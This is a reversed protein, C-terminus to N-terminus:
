TGVSAYLMDLKAVSVRLPAIYSWPGPASRMRAHCTRQQYYGAWRARKLMLELETCRGGKEADAEEKM